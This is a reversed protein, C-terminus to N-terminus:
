EEPEAYRDKIHHWLKGRNISEFVYESGLDFSREFVFAGAIVTLAFTSTRRFLTKYVTGLLGSM